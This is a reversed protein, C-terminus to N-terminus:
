VPQAIRISTSLHASLYIFKCISICTSPYSSLCVSLCVRPYTLCYLSKEFFVCKNYIYLFSVLMVKWHLGGWSWPVPELMECTKLNRWFFKTVNKVLEESRWHSRWQIFINKRKSSRENPWVYPFRVTLPKVRQLSIFWFRV